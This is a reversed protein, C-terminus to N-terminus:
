AYYEAASRIRKIIHLLTIQSEPTLVNYETVEEELKVRIALLLDEILRHDAPPIAGWDIAELMKVHVAELSVPESSDVLDAALDAYRIIRQARAQTDEAAEIIEGTAKYAAIGAILTHDNLAQMVTCSPIALLLLILVRWTWSKGM